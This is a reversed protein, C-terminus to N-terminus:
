PAEERLAPVDALRAERGVEAVVPLVAYAWDGTRTAPVTRLEAVVGAVPAELRALEDGFPDVLRGLLQGTEVEEGARVQNLLFGGTPAHVFEGAAPARMVRYTTPLDEPEGDLILLHRALNRLGREVAAVVELDLRGEGGAEVLIAPIARKAAELRLVNPFPAAGYLLGFGVAKALAFSAEGVPVPSRDFGVYPALAYALGGGHLDILADARTVVERVLLDAIRETLFGDPRGPFARNLDLRDIAGTRHGTEFAPPNAQPTAVVAGRLQTPDLGGLFRRLAEPGEYEDGHVGAVLGLTPGPRGGCVVM